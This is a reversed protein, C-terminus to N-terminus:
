AGVGPAILGCCDTAEDGGRAGPAWIPQLWRILTDLSAGVGKFDLGCPRSAMGKVMM